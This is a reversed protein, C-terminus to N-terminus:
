EDRVESKVLNKSLTPSIKNVLSILTDEFWKDTFPSIYIKHIMKRLIVTKHKIFQM